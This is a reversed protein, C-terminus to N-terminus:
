SAVLLDAPLHIAVRAGGLPSAALVVRGGLDGIVQSVIALGLGTGNARTTVLPELLEHPDDPFGPGDDDVCLELGADTHAASLTITGGHPLAQLANVLLNLLVQELLDAPVRLRTDAADGTLRLEVGRRRAGTALLAEVRAFLAAPTRTVQEGRTPRVFGRVRDLIVTLRDIEEVLLQLATRTGNPLDDRRLHVQVLTKMSGLPNGVEHALSASLLGLSSLRDAAQLRRQLAASSELLDRIEAVRADVQEQLTSNWGELRREAALLDRTTQEVHVSLQELEDGSRVDLPGPERGEAVLDVWDRLTRVPASLSRAALLALLVCAVGLLAAGRWLTAELDDARGDVSVAPTVLALHWDLEAGRPPALPAAAVYHDGVLEPVERRTRLQELPPHPCDGCPGHLSWGEPTSHAAIADGSVLYLEVDPVNHLADLRQLLPDAFLNTVVLGALTGGAHVQRVVRFVRRNPTEPVGHEINLDIPSFWTATPSALADKVYYRESKDQLDPRPVVQVTQGERQVRALEAGAPSLLRAQYYDRRLTVFSSLAQEGVTPEDLGAAVADALLHADSALVDLYSSVHAVNAQLHAALHHTASARLADRASHGAWSGLVLVPVLGLGVFAVLLKWRFGLWPLKRPSTVSGRGQM